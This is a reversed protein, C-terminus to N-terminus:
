PVLVLRVGNANRSWASEVDSLPVTETDIEFGGGLVRAFADAMEQPGRVTGTGHGVIELKTSRLVAGPLAITAGAMEGVQVLRTKGGAPSLDSRTLATLLAETPVGWLYDIVVDFGNEGAADGFAGPLDPADLRIVSDAGLETARALGEPNRGAAVVEGAGLLKAAQIALKGTVGTAGLILVRQGPQLDASWALSTWASVGPNLLAAATVDDMGDPVEILRRTDVVARQAMSGYPARAGGVFVRRGDDLRGVGDIGPIAPLETHASYHTGAARMKAINTIAAARVDVLAEGDGPIPDEFTGFRPPQGLTHVIAADM